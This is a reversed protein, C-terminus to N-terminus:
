RARRRSAARPQAAQTRARSPGREAECRRAFQELLPRTRHTTPMTNPRKSSRALRARDREPVRRASRLATLAVLECAYMVHPYPLYDVMAHRYVRFGCKTLLARLEDSPWYHVPTKPDMALDLAHTFLRKYAPKADVDKVLLRGGRPLCKCIGELLPKVRDAPIHHIVDLM